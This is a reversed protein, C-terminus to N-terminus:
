TSATRPTPLLRSLPRKWRPLRAIRCAAIARRVAQQHESTAAAHGSRWTAWVQDRLHKPLHNWDRRCMLRTADIPDGCGPVPCTGPSPLALWPQGGPGKGRGKPLSASTQREALQSTM